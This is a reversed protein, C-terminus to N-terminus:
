LDAPLPLPRRGAFGDEPFHWWGLEDEGALWCLLVERGSPLRAPFDVVGKLPDRLIIGMAELEGLASDADRPMDGVLEPGGEPGGSFSDGAAWRLQDEGDPMVDAHGNAQARAALHTARRVLALLVKLRPLYARAEEESWYRRESM